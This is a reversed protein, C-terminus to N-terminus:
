YQGANKKGAVFVPTPYGAEDMKKVISEFDVGQLYLSFIKKVAEVTEDNM